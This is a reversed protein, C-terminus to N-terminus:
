VKDNKWGCKICYTDRYFYQHQRIRTEKINYELEEGCTRCYTTPMSVQSVSNMQKNQQCDLSIQM